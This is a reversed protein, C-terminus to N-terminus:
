RRPKANRQMATQVRFLTPMACRFGGTGTREDPRTEGRSACASAGGGATRNAGDGVGVECGSSSATVTDLSALTGLALTPPPTWSSRLTSSFSDNSFGSMDSSHKM